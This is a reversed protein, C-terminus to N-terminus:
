TAALQSAVSLFFPIATMNATVNYYAAPAHTDVTYVLWLRSTHYKVPLANAIYCNLVATYQKSVSAGCHEVIYLQGEMSQMYFCWLM